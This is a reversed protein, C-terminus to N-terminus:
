NRNQLRAVAWGALLVTMAPLCVFPLALLLNPVLVKWITPPHRPDFTDVAVFFSSMLWVLFGLLAALVSLRRFTRSIGMTSHTAEILEGVSWLRDTVGAAM